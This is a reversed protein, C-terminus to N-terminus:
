CSIQKIVYTKTGAPVKVEASEGVKRGLFAQGLPSDNSIRGQLPDAETAGVIMYKKEKDGDHVHVTCGIMVTDSPKAEIIVAHNISDQLELIRSSVWAMEDKADHYDANEKLDGLDKAKEIRDTIERRKENKLFDLEKKLKELGEKSIYTPNGNMFFCLRLTVYYTPYLQCSAIDVNFLFSDFLFRVRVPLVLANKYNLHM